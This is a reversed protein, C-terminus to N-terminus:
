LLLFSSEDQYYWWVLWVGVSVHVTQM